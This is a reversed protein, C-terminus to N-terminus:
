VNLDAFPPGIFRRILDYETDDDHVPWYWLALTVRILWQAALTDMRGTMEEAFAAVLPSSTLWGSDSNPRITGMMLQGLPEARIHKLAVVIATVVRDSGSLEEISERVASVIRMSFRQIIGDLIVTKGGVQRYITAPSCHVKEALADITFADFGKRSILDSAASYIRDAAESRRDRGVL